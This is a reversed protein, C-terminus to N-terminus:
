KAIEKIKRELETNNPQNKMTRRMKRLKNTKHRNEL